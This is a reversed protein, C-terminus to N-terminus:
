NSGATTLRPYKMSFEGLRSHADDIPSNSDESELDAELAVMRTDVNVGDQDQVDETEESIAGLDSMEHDVEPEQSPIPKLLPYEHAILNPDRMLLYRLRGDGSGMIMGDRGKRKPQPNKRCAFAPKSQAMIARLDRVWAGDMACWNLASLEPPQPEFHLEFDLVDWVRGLKVGRLSALAIIASSFSDFDILQWKGPEFVDEKTVISLGSECLIGLLESWEYYAGMEPDMVELHLELERLRPLLQLMSFAQPAVVSGRWTPGFGGIVLERIWAKRDSPLSKLFYWLQTPTGFRLANLYYFLPLCEQYIRRSLTLVRLVSERARSPDHVMCIGRQTLHHDPLTFIHGYVMRQIELPLDLLRFPMSM